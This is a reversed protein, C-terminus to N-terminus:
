ECIQSIRALRDRDSDMRTFYTNGPNFAKIINNSVKSFFGIHEYNKRSEIPSTVQPFISCDENEFRLFNAEQLEKEYISGYVSFDIYIHDDKYSDYIAKKLLSVIHKKSGYLDIIRNVSFRTPVLIEPRLVIYAKVTGNELVGYVKYKIGPYDFFRWTLFDVTRHTTAIEEFPEDMELKYERINNKTLEVINNFQTRENTNATNATFDSFKGADQSILKIIEVTKPLDLIYIFRNFRDFNLVSYGTRLYFEATSRTFGIVGNIENTNIIYDVIKSNIGKGRWEPLTYASVGWIMSFIEKGAKLGYSLGGYHSVIEGDQKVGILNNCLPSSHSNRSDFYYLLFKESQFITQEGYAKIFFKQLNPIDAPSATRVTIQNNTELM